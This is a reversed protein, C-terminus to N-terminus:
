VGRNWRPQFLLCGTPSTVHRGSRAIGGSSRRRARLKWGGACSKRCLDAFCSTTVLRCPMHNGDQICALMSACVELEIHDTRAYGQPGRLVRLEQLGRDAGAAQLKSLVSAHDWRREWHSALNSVDSLEDSRSGFLPKILCKIRVHM